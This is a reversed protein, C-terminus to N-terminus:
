LLDEGWECDEPCLDGHHHEWAVDWMDGDQDPSGAHVLQPDAGTPVPCGCWDHEFTLLGFRSSEPNVIVGWDAGLKGELAVYYPCQLAQPKEGVAVDAPYTDSLAAECLFRHMAHHDYRRHLPESM